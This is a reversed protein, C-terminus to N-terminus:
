IKLIAFLSFDKLQMIYPRTLLMSTTSVIIRMSDITAKIEDLRSDESIMSELLHNRFREDCSAENGLRLYDLQENDLMDCIEDIARNTYATLLLTDGEKLEERVIFRLAQSTKGTGPPGVLLFYDRSQKVKELM